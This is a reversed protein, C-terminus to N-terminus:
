ACENGSSVDSEMLFRVIRLDLESDIDLSREPPMVYLGTREGFLSDSEILTERKWIYISANM